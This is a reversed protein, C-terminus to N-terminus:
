KKGFKAQLEAIQAKMAAQADNALRGKAKKRKDEKPLAEDVKKFFEKWMAFFDVSSKRMDDTKDLLYFDCTSAHSAVVKTTESEVNSLVKAETDIFEGLKTQFRDNPEHFAQVSKKAALADDIMSKLEAAKQKTVETDTKKTSFLRILESIEGQFEENEKQIKICIFQLMSQGTNDKTSSLKGLVSMDFGDAQGKPTNGNLVNGIALAMSLIKFIYKNSNLAGYLEKQTKLTAEQIALEDKWNIKFKWMNLRAKISPPDVLPLFYAEAKDWIENGALTKNEAELADVPSDKPWVRLLSLLQDGSVLNEDFHILAEKLADARPLKPISMQISKSEEPTFYSRKQPGVVKIINEKM